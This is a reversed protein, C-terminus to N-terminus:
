SYRAAFHVQRGGPKSWMRRLMSWCRNLRVLQPLAACTSCLPAAIVKTRDHPPKSPLIMTFPRRGTPADCVLCALDGHADWLPACVDFPDAGRRIRLAAAAVESEDLEVLILEAV